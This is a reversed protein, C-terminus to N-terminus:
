QSPGKRPSHARAAAPAHTGPTQGAHELAAVRDLLAPVQRLAAQLRLENRHPQSPTGSVIAGPPVDKTVMARALVTAGEGVTTHDVIGVGGALTVRAGITASGAVGVTAVIIADPGIHVNHGIQVLNDIKTRAGIRTEGLTARDITTNAGIEVDEELVVGGIQPIRVQQGGDAAYGFGDSGVVAGSHLIVRQGIVSRDYITVHPYIITGDGITVRAGISGGAHIVVRAGVTTGDGIVVYPGIMCDPGLITGRGIVATPHVGPVAPPDPHLLAIMRAFAVRLNRSRILPKRSSSLTMPVLLATAETTEAAALTRADRAMVISGAVAGQPDTVTRVEVNGDGVIEGGLASALVALKM